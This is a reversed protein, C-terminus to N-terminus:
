ARSESGSTEETFSLALSKTGNYNSNQIMEAAKAWANTIRAATAGIETDFQQIWETVPVVEKFSPLWQSDMFEELKTFSLRDSKCTSGSVSHRRIMCRSSFGHFWRLFRLADQLLDAVVEWDEGIRTTREVRIHINYIDKRARFIWIHPQCELLVQFRARFRASLVLGDKTNSQSEKLVLPKYRVVFRDSNNCPLEAYGYASFMIEQCCAPDSEVM